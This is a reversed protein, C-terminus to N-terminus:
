SLPVIEDKHWGPASLKVQDLDIKGQGTVIATASVECGGGRPGKSTQDELFFQVKVQHKDDGLREAESRHVEDWVLDKPHDLGFEELLRKGESSTEFFSKLQKITDIRVLEAARHTGIQSLITGTVSPVGNSGDKSSSIVPALYNWWSKTKKFLRWTVLSAAGGVTVWVVPGLFSSLVSAAGLTGLIWKRNSKNTTALVIKPITWISLAQRRVQPQLANNRTILQYRALQRPQINRKIHFMFLFTYLLFSFLFPFFFTSFRINYSRGKVSRHCCQKISKLSCKLIKCNKALTTM